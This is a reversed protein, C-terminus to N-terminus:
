KMSTAYLLATENPQVRIDHVDTAIVTIANMNTDTVAGMGNAGIAEV